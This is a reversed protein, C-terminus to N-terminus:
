QSIIHNWNWNDSQRGRRINELERQLRFMTADTATYTKYDQGDMGIREIPAVVAATGAGFAEVKKNEELWKKVEKYSIRREEVPVGMSAALQLLSRRTIGDLITGSLPPTILRNETIFMINMTGSEEIFEHEIADTWIVQDYGQALAQSYPYFAAGYNGGNKAFGAGGPAARVYSTEVKLSLPKSYYATIPTAVVLFHYQNAIKVGLRAETAIVFPRIYLSAEAVDNPLCVADRRVLTELGEMFLSLPIEPMCMRRLSEQMRKYHLDPRFINIAGSATRFAKMGEFVTQGYHLCLAFPSLELPQFPMLKGAQWHGSSYVSQYMHSTPVKGFESTAERSGAQTTTTQMNEVAEPYNMTFIKHHHSPQIM